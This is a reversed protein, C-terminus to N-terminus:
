ITREKFRKKGLAQGAGEGWCSRPLHGAEAGGTVAEATGVPDQQVSGPGAAPLPRGQLGPLVAQGEGACPRLGAEEAGDEPVQLHRSRLFLPDGAAHAGMGM